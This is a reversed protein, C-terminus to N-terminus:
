GVADSWIIRRYQAQELGFNIWRWENGEGMNLLAYIKYLPCRQSRTYKGTFDAIKLHGISFNLWMFHM